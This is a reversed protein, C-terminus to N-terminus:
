EVRSWASPGSEYREEVGERVLVTENADARRDLLAPVRQPAGRRGLHLTRMGIAAHGPAPVVEVREGAIAAASGWIEATEEHCAGLVLLTLSLAVWRALM